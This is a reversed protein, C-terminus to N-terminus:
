CFYNHNNKQLLERSHTANKIWKEYKSVRTYISPVRPKGCVRGGGVVVGILTSTTPLTLPGGSDGHCGGSGDREMATCLQGGGILIKPIRQSQDKMANEKIREDELWEMCQSNELVRVSTFMLEESNKGSQM